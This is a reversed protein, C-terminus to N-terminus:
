ARMENELQSLIIKWAGDRESQQILVDRGNVASALLSRAAEIRVSPNLDNLEHVLFPAAEETAIKGLTQLAKLRFEEPQGAYHQIIARSTDEQYIEGLTKVAQLRVAPAPHELCRVVLHHLEYRRFTATLKLAFSVVSNNPSQLWRNTGQFEGAPFGQLLHLLNIQQWETIQYNAVNLFRLGIFGLLRIVGAQAEMRVLDNSHNTLRYINKWYQRQQMLSLEQIGKAKLHWRYSKLKQESDKFLQWQEYLSQIVEGAKGSFNRRALILENIITKRNYKNHCLKDVELLLQDDEPTQEDDMALMIQQSVVQAVLLKIAAKQERFKKRRSSYFFIYFITILSVIAFLVGGWLLHEPKVFRTFLLTNIIQM